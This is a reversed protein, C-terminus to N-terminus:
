IHVQRLEKSELTISSMVSAHAPWCVLQCNINATELPLNNCFFDPKRPGSVHVNLTYLCKGGSLVAFTKAHLLVYVLAGDLLDPTLLCEDLAVLNKLHVPCM